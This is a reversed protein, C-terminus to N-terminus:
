LGHFKRWGCFSVLRKVCDFIVARLATKGKM